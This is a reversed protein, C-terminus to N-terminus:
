LHQVKLLCKVLGVVNYEAASVKSIKIEKISWQM